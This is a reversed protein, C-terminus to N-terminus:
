TEECCDLLPIGFGMKPRTVNRQFSKYLVQAPHAQAGAVRAAICPLRFAFEAIRHRPAARTRRHQGGDNGTWKVLIDDPLYNATWCACISAFSGSLCGPNRAPERPREYDLSIAGAGSPCAEAYMERPPRPYIRTFAVAPRTVRAQSGQTLNPCRLCASWEDLKDPPGSERRHCDGVHAPGSGPEEPSLTLADSYVNYGSFVRRRRGGVARGPGTRPWGSVLYNPAPRDAFPEDYIAGVESPHGTSVRKPSVNQTTPAWLEAGAKRAAGRQVEKMSDSRSPTSRHASHKSPHRHCHSRHRPPFM